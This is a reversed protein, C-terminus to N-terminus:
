MNLANAVQQEVHLKCIEAIAKKVVNARQAVTPSPADLKIMQPYVSFVLLTSVLGNPGITNNLAKFAMQL